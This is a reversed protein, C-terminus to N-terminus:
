LSFGDDVFVDLIPRLVSLSAAFHSVELSFRSDAWPAICIAAAAREEHVAQYCEERRHRKDSRIM